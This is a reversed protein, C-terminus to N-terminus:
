PTSSIPSTKGIVEIITIVTTNSKDICERLFALFFRSYFGM